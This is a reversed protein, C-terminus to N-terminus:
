LPKCAGSDWFQGRKKRFVLRRLEIIEEDIRFGAASIHVPFLSRNRVLIGPAPGLEDRSPVVEDRVWSKTVVSVVLREQDRRWTWWLLLIAPIGTFLATLALVIIDKIPVDAVLLVLALPSKM